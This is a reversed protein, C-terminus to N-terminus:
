LVGRKGIRSGRLNAYSAVRAREVRHIPNQTLAKHGASQGAPNPQVHGSAHVRNPFADVIDM